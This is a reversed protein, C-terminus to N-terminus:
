DLNWGEIHFGWMVYQYMSIIEKRSERYGMCVCSEVCNLREESSDKSVTTEVTCKQVLISIQM